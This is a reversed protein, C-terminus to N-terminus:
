VSVHISVQQLNGVVLVTGYCYSSVGIYSSHGEETTVFAYKDVLRKINVTIPEGHPISVVGDGAKEIDNILSPLGTLYIYKTTPNM